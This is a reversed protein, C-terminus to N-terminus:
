SAVFGESTLKKLIGHSSGSRFVSWNIRHLVGARDRAVAWWANPNDKYEESAREEKTPFPFGRM